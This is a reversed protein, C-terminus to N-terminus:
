LRARMSIIDSKVNPYQDISEWGAMSSLQTKAGAIVELADKKFAENRYRDGMVAARIANDACLSPKLSAVCTEILSNVRYRDAVAMLVEALDFNLNEPLTAEYIYVLFIEMTDKDLDVPIEIHGAKLMTAFVDSRACLVSRHVPFRVGDKCTIAMDAVEGNKRLAALDAALALLSAEKVKEKHQQKKSDESKEPLGPPDENVPVLQYRVPIGGIRIQPLKSPQPLNDAWHQTNQQQQRRRKRPQYDQELYDAPDWAQDSGGEEDDEWKGSNLFGDDIFPDNRDYSEVKGTAKETRIRSLFKKFQDLNVQRSAVKSFKNHMAVLLKEKEEKFGGAWKGSSLINNPDLETMIVFAADTDRKNFKKSRRRRGDPHYSPETSGHASGENESPWNFDDGSEGIDRNRRRGGGRSGNNLGNGEGNDDGFDFSGDGSIEHQPPVFEGDDKPNKREMRLRSLFRHMQKLTV